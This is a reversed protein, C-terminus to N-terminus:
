GNGIALRIYCRDDFSANQPHWAKTAQYDRILLPDTNLLSQLHQESALLTPYLHPYGDSALIIEQAASADIVKVRGTPIGFGDIVVYDLNQRLMSQKLAPIIAARGEDNRRIDDITAGAALLLEIREARRAALVAEMPKPNEHYQAGAKGVLLCHCDGVLWVERRQRSYIIASCTIRDEPHNRLHELTLEPRYVAYQQRVADTVGQCFAPMDMDRPCTEIYRCVCRAAIQGHTLGNALPPLSSKSTSGDAVAVFSDTVVFDDECREMGQKGVIQKEIIQMTM